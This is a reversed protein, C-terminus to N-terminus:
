ILNLILMQVVAAGDNEARLSVVVFASGGM